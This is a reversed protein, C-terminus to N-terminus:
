KSRSMAALGWVVGDKFMGRHAQKECLLNTLAKTCAHRTEDSDSAVLATILLVSVAGCKTIEIERGHDYALNLLTNACGKRMEENPKSILRILSEPAGEELLLVRGRECCSIRYVAIVVRQQTDRHEMKSMDLLTRVFSKTMIQHTYETYHERKSVPISF